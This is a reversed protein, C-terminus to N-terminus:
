GSSGAIASPKCRYEDKLFRNLALGEPFFVQQHETTQILYRKRKTLYQLFLIVITFSLQYQSGFWLRKVAAESQM